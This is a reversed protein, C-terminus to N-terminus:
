QYDRYHRWILEAKTYVYRRICDVEKKRLFFFRAKKKQKKKTQWGAIPLGPSKGRGWCFGIWRRKQTNEKKFFFSSLELLFFTEQQALCYAMQIQTKKPKNWFFKARLVYIYLITSIYAPWISSSIEIDRKRHLLIHIDAPVLQSREIKQGRVYTESKTFGKRNPEAVRWTVLIVMQSANYKHKFKIPCLFFFFRSPHLTFNVFDFVWWWTAM